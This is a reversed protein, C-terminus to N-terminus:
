ALKSNYLSTTGVFGRSWNWKDLWYAEFEQEDLEVIEEEEVELRAIATNYENLYHQPKPLESCPSQAETFDQKEEMQKLLKVYRKIVKKRWEARAEKFEAEHKTRNEVLKDKLKDRNIRTVKM